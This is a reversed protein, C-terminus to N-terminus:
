RNATYSGCRSRWIDSAHVFSMGRSKLGGIIARVSDVTTRHIDHMLVISDDPVRTAAPVIRSRSRHLWDLTDGGVFDRGDWHGWGVFPRGDFCSGVSGTVGFPARLIRPTAGTAARIAADTRSIQSAVNGRSLVPHSWSHNCLEHGETYMRAVITPNDRARHGVICFTAKVGEEQLIDLLRPTLTRHPGDDFSLAVRGGANVPATACYLLFLSLVLWMRNKM